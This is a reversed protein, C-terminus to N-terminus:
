NEHLKRQKSDSWKRECQVANNRGNNAGDEM